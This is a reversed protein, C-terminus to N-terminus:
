VLQEGPSTQSTIEVAIACDVNKSRPGVYFGALPNDTLDEGGASSSDGCDLGGFYAVTGSTQATVGGLPDTGEAIFTTTQSGGQAQASYQCTATGGPAVTGLSCRQTGDETVAVLDLPVNGTNTVTFDWVVNTGAVVVPGNNSVSIDISPSSGFYSSSDSHSVATGVPPTGTATGTNTYPDGVASTEATGTATCSSSSGPAITTGCGTVAGIVSDSVVVGNLTVNGTNTITYTWTVQDGANITPGDSPSEGPGNTAVDITIGPASGYYHSQDSATVNEGFPSTASVSGINARQGPLATASATYTWTETTDLLGDGNADGGAQLVPKAGESDSVSVSSLPLDGPNTVVYTWTIAGDVEVFPGTPTDADSTNTAVEIAVEANADALHFVTRHDDPSETSYEWTAGGELSVSGTVMSIRVGDFLGMPTSAALSYKDRFKSDPGSDSGESLDEEMTDIVTTGRLFEIRVRADFKAEFDFDVSSIMQGSISSGLSLTLAESSDGGLFDVRGCDQGNGNGKENVGLGDEVLGIPAPDVVRGQKNYTTASIEMIPGNLSSDSVSCANRGLTVEQTLATGYEFQNTDGDLVLVITDPSDTLAVGVAVSGVALLATVLMGVVFWRARRSRVERAM